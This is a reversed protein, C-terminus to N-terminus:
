AGGHPSPLGGVHSFIAAGICAGAVVGAVRNRLFTGVAGGVCACSVIGVLRALYVPAEQPLRFFAIGTLVAVASFATAVFIDALSFQFRRNM